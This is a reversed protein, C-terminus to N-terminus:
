ELLVVALAAIGDGRGTFGLGDTTTAKVNVANIDVALAAAIVERMKPVYAALKPAQAVVTADVNVLRFGAGGVREYALELLRRSNAGRWREDSSPFMGGIDGLGAAGLLADIIAHLLVDGDSYVALARDYQVAVGGLVFGSAADGFAHVDIGQGIRM